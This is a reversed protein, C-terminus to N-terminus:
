SSPSLDLPGNGPHPMCTRQLNKMTIDVGLTCKLSPNQWNTPPPLPFCSCHPAHTYSCGVGARLPNLKKRLRLRQEKIHRSQSPVAWAPCSPHRGEASGPAPFSAPLYCSPFFQLGRPWQLALPAGLRWRARGSGWTQHHLPWSDEGQNGWPLIHFEGARGWSQCSLGSGRRRKPPFEVPILLHGPPVTLHMHTQPYPNREGWGAQQPSSLM